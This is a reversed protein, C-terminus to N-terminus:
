ETRLATVADVRGARRAPVYAAVTSSLLVVVATVFLAIPDSGNVKFLQAEALKGIWYTAALGCALGIVVAVSSQRVVFAVLQAPQAGVVLRIGLERTRSSVLFGVVGM